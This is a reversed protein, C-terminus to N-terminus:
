REEDADPTKGYVFSTDDPTLSLPKEEQGDWLTASLSVAGNAGTFLGAKVTYQILADQFMKIVIDNNLQSILGNKIILEANITTYKSTDM